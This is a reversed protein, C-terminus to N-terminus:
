IFLSYFFDATNVISLLDLGAMLWCDKGAGRKRREIFRFFFKAFFLYISATYNSTCIYVIRVCIYTQLLSPQHTTINHIRYPNLINTHIFCRYTYRQRRQIISSTLHQISRHFSKELQSLSLSVLPVCGVM